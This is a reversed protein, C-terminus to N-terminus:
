PPLQRREERPLVESESAPFVENAPDLTPDLTPLPPPTRRGLGLARRALLVAGGVVAGVVAVGALLTAGAVLVAIVVLLVALALLTTVVPNGGRLTVIRVRM